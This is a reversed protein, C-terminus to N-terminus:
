LVGVGFIQDLETVVEITKQKDLFMLYHPTPLKSVHLHACGPKDRQLLASLAGRTPIDNGSRDLKIGEFLRNDTHRYIEYAFFDAAQLPVVPPYVVGNIVRELKGEEFSWGAMRSVATLVDSNETMELVARVEKRGEVEAGRELVYRVPENRRFDDMWTALLRFCAFVGGAYFSRGMVSPWNGKNVDIWDSKCVSAAFGANVRRLIIACARKNVKLKLEDQKEKPWDQAYRFEGWLHELENKHIYRVGVEQCLELWEREFQTWQEVTAVYGGVAYANASGHSEDLHVTFM